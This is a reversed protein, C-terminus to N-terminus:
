GTGEQDPRRKGQSESEKAMLEVWRMQSPRKPRVPFEPLDVSLKRHEDGLERIDDLGTTSYPHFMDIELQRTALNVHLEAEHAFMIGQLQGAQNVACSCRGRSHVDEVRKVSIEYGLKDLQIRSDRRLLRLPFGGHRQDGQQAFHQADLSDRGHVPHLHGHQGSDGAAPGPRRRAAFQRRGGQAGLIENDHALRGYVVCTAFLTTTPLTYPLTNPILLPIVTLIQSPTLGQQTAEAFIGGMLLIATLGVLALLFVRVLEIFIMRHAIGLFM